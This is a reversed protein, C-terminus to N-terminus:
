ACGPPFTLHSDIDFFRQLIEPAALGVGGFLAAATQALQVLVLGAKELVSLPSADLVGEVVHVHDPAIVVDVHDGIDELVGIVGDVEDLAGPAIAPHALGVQGNDVPELAAQLAHAPFSQGGGGPVVPGHDAGGNLLDAVEEVGIGTEVAALLVFGVLGADVGVLGGATGHEIGPDVGAVAVDGHLHDGVEDGAVHVAVGHEVVDVRHLGDAQGAVGAGHALGLGADEHLIVNGIGSGEHDGAVLGAVGGNGGGSQLVPEEVLGEERQGHGHLKVIGQDLLVAHLLDLLAPLEDLLLGAHGEAPVGHLTMQLALVLQLTVLPLLPFNGALGIVVGDVANGLSQEADEGGLVANLAGEPFLGALLDLLDHVLAHLLLDIGEGLGAVAHDGPGAGRQVEGVPAGPGVVAPAQVADDVHVRQHEVHLDAGIGVLVHQFVQGLIMHPGGHAAHGDAAHVVDELQPIVHLLEVAVHDGHVVLQLALAHLTDM